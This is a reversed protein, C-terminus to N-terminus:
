FGREKFHLKQHMGAFMTKVLNMMHQLAKAVFDPDLNMTPGFDWANRGKVSVFLQPKHCGSVSLVPSLILNPTGKWIHDWTCRKVQMETEGNGVFLYIFEQIQHFPIM